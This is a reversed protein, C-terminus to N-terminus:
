STLQLESTLLTARQAACLAVQLYSCSRAAKRIKKYLGTKSHTPLIASTNDAV